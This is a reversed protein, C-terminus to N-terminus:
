SRPGPSSGNGLTACASAFWAATVLWAGASYLADIAAADGTQAVAVFGAESSALLQGNARAIVEVATAPGMGAFVAVPRGAVPALIAACMLVCVIGFYGALMLCSIRSVSGSRTETETRM